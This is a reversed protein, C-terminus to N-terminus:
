SIPEHGSKARSLVVPEEDGTRVEDFFSKVLPYENVPFLSKKVTLNRQIHLRSGEELVCALGYQFFDPESRRPAPVTEVMVGEPLSIVIDDFEQFPFSFYVPYKREAHRFPHRGGGQFPSVPLIVREGASIALGPIAVEFVASLVDAASDINELAKLAVKAGSPLIDSLEEEFDKKREVEDSEIEELRRLLAEQGKYDVRVTGTLDGGADLRLAVQRQVLATEPPSPPTSFFSPLERSFRLGTTGTCAWRVLGLPCFPTAPDFFQEVGDVKVVALETDFQDYLNFLNRDFFKDDRMSVRVVEAELGSARALSVFTRTIDSRIGYGRKLVDKAKSNDKIKEAKRRKPTMSFEYSLNRIQQAREYLRRIKEVPDAEQPVVRRAEMVVDKPKGIFKSVGKQWNGSEKKWYEDATGVDKDMFYFRVEMQETEEPPMLEEAEFAPIDKMELEIYGESNVAPRAGALRHFVWAIRMERGLMGLLRGLEVPPRYLFKARRTFLNEQIKWTELRLSLFFDHGSIGGERPKVRGGELLEGLGKGAGGTRSEDPVIEFRYDVISGVEVDPLAFTKLTM